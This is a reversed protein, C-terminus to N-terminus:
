LPLPRHGAQRESGTHSTAKHDPRSEGRLLPLPLRDVLDTHRLSVRQASTPPATGMGREDCRVRYTPPASWQTSLVHEKLMTSFEITCKILFLSCIEWLAQSVGRQTDSQAYHNNFTVM